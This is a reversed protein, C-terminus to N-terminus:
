FALEMPIMTYRLYIFTMLPPVITGGRTGYKHMNMKEPNDMVCPDASTSAHLLPFQFLSNRFHLMHLMHLM